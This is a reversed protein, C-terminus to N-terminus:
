TLIISIIISATIITIPATIATNRIRMAMLTTSKRLSRDPVGCDGRAVGGAAPLKVGPLLLALRYTGSVPSSTSVLPSQTDLLTLVISVGISAKPLYDTVLAKLSM